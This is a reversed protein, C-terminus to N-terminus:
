GPIRAPGLQASRRGGDAGPAAARSLEARFDDEAIRARRRHARGRPLPCIGRPHRRSRGQGQRQRGRHSHVAHPYRSRGLQLGASIGYAAGLKERVAIWLRASPSGGLAAVALQTRLLDPTVSLLMPGGAAIASQVVPKELVILKGAARLGPKVSAPVNGARPLGAFLRDIERGADAAAMPGAAVLILGDRVLVDRRWRDVDEVTVRAFIAPDSTAYRQFPGDGIVLRSLLRQALTEASSEAQRSVTARNKAMDVLRDAALAPDALAPALLRVADAFKERPAVLSGQVVNVTAGLTATARLDRLDEIMASRSSGRPGEMILATALSPLAEKGPVAVATGDKWAFYLAQAQQDPMHLYRFSLGAPTTQRTVTQAHVGANQTVFAAAVALPAFFRARRM